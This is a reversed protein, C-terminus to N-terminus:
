PSRPPLPFKKSVSQAAVSVIMPPILVWTSCTLDPNVPTM